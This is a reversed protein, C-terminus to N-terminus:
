GAKRRRLNTVLRLIPIVLRALTFTTAIGELARRRVALAEVEVRSPSSRFALLAFVIALLLDIGGLIGTIALFSLGETRLGYWAALHAFAIVGVLFLLALAGLVMRVAMRGAFARLRVSEAEAAIRALYLPRM